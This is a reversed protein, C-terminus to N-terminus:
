LELCYEVVNSIERASNEMCAKLFEVSASLAIEPKTAQLVIVRGKKVAPDLM